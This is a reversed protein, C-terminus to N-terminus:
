AAGPVAPLVVRPSAQLLEEVVFENAPLRVVEWGLADLFAEPPELFNVLETRYHM